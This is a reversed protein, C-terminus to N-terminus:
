PIVRVAGAPVGAELRYPVRAAGLDDNLLRIARSGSGARLIAVDMFGAQRRACLPSVHIALAREPHVPARAIRENWPLASASPIQRYGLRLTLTKEPLALDRDSM